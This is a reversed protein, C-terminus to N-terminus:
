YSLEEKHDKIAQAAKTLTDMEAQSIAPPSRKALDIGIESLLATITDQRLMVAEAAQSLTYTHGAM